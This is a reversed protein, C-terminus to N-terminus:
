PNLRCQEDPMFSEVVTCPFPEHKEWSAILTIGLQPGDPGEYCRWNNRFDDAPCEACLPCLEGSPLVCAAEEDFPEDYCTHEPTPQIVVSGDSGSDTDIFGADGTSSQGGAGAGGGRGQSEDATKGGCASLLLLLVVVRQVM